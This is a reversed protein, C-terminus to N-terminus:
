LQYCFGRSMARMLLSKINLGFSSYSGKEKWINPSWKDMIRSTTVETTSPHWNVLNATNRVGCLPRPGKAKM